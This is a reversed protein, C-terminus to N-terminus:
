YTGDTVAGSYQWAVDIVILDSYSASQQRSTVLANVYHRPKGATTGEEGWELTGEAGPVLLGWIATDGAKHKITAQKTGDKLTTLYTKNADAGASQDVTDMTENHSTSRYNTNLATGKFLLYYADGIAGTDSM